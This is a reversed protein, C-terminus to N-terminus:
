RALLHVLRVCSFWREIGSGYPQGLDPFHMARLSPLQALLRWNHNATQQNGNHLHDQWDALFARMRSHRSRAQHYLGNPLAYIILRTARSNADGDIVPMNVHIRADPAEAGTFSQEAFWRNRTWSLEDASAIAPWTWMGVAFVTFGFRRLTRLYM